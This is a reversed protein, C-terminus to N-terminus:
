CMNLFVHTVLSVATKYNMRDVLCVHMVRWVMTVRSVRYGDVEGGDM